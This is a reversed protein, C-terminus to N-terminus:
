RTPAPCGPPASRPCSPRPRDSRERRPRAEEDVAVVWFRYQTGFTLGTVRYKARTPKALRKGNGFVEYHQVSPDTGDAAPANWVLTVSTM